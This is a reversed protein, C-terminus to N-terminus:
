LEGIVECKASKVQGGITVQCVLWYHKGVELNKLLPMTVDTTDTIAAAGSFYTATGLTGGTAQDYLAYVPSAPTGVAAWQFVYAIQEATGQYLPSEAVVRSSSM